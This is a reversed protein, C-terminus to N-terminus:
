SYCPNPCPASINGNFQPEAAIGLGPTNNYALNMGFLDNTDDNTADTTLDSALAANNISTLWGRINYRYDVSQKAETSVTSHLKKDVLQGLENYENKVLLIDQGDTGLKHWTELLRGGHDYTMHRAVVQRQGQAGSMRLRSVPGNQSYISVDAYLAATNPLPTSGTPAVKIGNKYFNIVGGERAIRLRDGLAVVNSGSVMAIQTGNLRVILAGAATQQFGYNITAYDVNADTTSLGFTRTANIDTVTAEIFGDADAPIYEMSSVGATWGSGALSKTIKDNTITVGTANTWTINGVVHDTKTALVKGVFDYINTIRDTGKLYNDSVSQIPRYHDDYYMVTQLWTFETELTRVKTGTVQGVVSPFKDAEQDYPLGNVTQRGVQSALYEYEKGWGTVFEYNDYYTVTLVELKSNPLSGTPFVTNTYGHTAHNATASFTEYFLTTSIQGSMYEQTVPSDHTYIGTMVPRNLADYKTFLWKNTNRQEADQTMVLRDRDDYVMYVWGAGPVKKHTVRHRADYRYQFAWDDLVITLQEQVKIPDSRFIVGSFQVVGTISFRYIGEDTAKAYANRKFTLKSPDQNQADVNTWSVGDSGLKEWAITGSGPSRGPIILPQGEVPDIRTVDKFNKQPTLTAAKLGAGKVAELTAPDLRNSTFWVSLKTKNAQASFDPLTKFENNEVHLLVLASAGLVDTPITTFLNNQASVSTLATCGALSPFAGEFANGSVDITSLGSRNSFLTAPLSGSFQNGACSWKVLDSWNGCGNPIHGSLDNNSIDFYQMKTLAGLSEPLAGSLMNNYLYVITLNTLKSFEDPVPGSLNNDNLYLSTLATLNGLSVPLHGELENDQLGLYQLTSLNGLASPITGSLNNSAVSLTQLHSLNGLSAPISDSLQNTYLSLNTLSTMLGLSDPIAGSLQNGYLWLYTLNKLKGLSGPIKGSISNSYLRLQTLKTLKGIDRPLKGVLNNAQLQIGTIDGSTITIGQWTAFQASTASAPWAGPAPWNTKSTWNAGGLSDYLKKLVALEVNDPVANSQASARHGLAPLLLVVLSFVKIM